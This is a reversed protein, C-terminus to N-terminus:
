HRYVPVYQKCALHIYKKSAFNFDFKDIELCLLKNEVERNKPFSSNRSEENLDENM